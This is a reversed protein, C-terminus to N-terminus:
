EDGQSYLIVKDLSNYINDLSKLSKEMIELYPKPIYYKKGSLTSNVTSMVNSSNSLLRLSYDLDNRFSLDKLLHEPIFLDLTKSSMRKKRAIILSQNTENSTQNIRKELFKRHKEIIQNGVSPTIIFGSKDFDIQKGYKLDKRVEQSITQGKQATVIDGGLVVQLDNLINITDEGFDLCVPIIETIGKANNQIIVDKVEPMVGFCFIVYPIKEEAAKYLLHYVEGVSDIRGDIIIYKFNKVSHISKRGLYSSDYNIRFNINESKKILIEETQSTHINISYELSINGILVKLLEAAKKNKLSKVFDDITDKHLFYNDFNVDLKNTFYKELFAFGLKPYISELKLYENQLISKLTSDISNKCVINLYNAIKDPILSSTDKSYLCNEIDAVSNFSNSNKELFSKVSNRNFVETKKKPIEGYTTQQM